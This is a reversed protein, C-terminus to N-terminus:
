PYSMGLCSLTLILFLAFVHLGTDYVGKEGSGCVPKESGGSPMSNGAGHRKSLETLLFETPINSWSIDTIM